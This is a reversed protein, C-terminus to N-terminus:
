NLNFMGNDEEEDGDDETVNISEILGGLEDFVSVDLHNTIDNFAIKVVYEGLDIKKNVM